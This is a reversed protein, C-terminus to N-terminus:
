SHPHIKEEGEAIPDSIINSSQPLSQLVTVRLMGTPISTQVVDTTQKDLV